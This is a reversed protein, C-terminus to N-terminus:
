NFDLDILFACSAREIGGSIEYERPHKSRTTVRCTLQRNFFFFFSFVLIPFFNPLWAFISSVRRRIFLSISALRSDKSLSVQNTVIPYLLALPTQPAFHSFLKLSPSSLHPLPLPPPSTAPIVIALVVYPRLSPPPDAPYLRSAPVSAPM